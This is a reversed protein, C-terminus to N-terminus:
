ATHDHEKLYRVARAMLIDERCEAPTWPVYLDPAVGRGFVGNGDLAAKTVATPWTLTFREDLAYSVDGCLDLTGLTPRGILYAGARKAALALAEAGGRTWTDTLVAAPVEARGPIVTDDGTDEVLFGRGAKAALEAVFPEAGPLGSIAAAKVLCNRRTYNVFLSTDTLDSLCVDRRCLLPLLAFAEDEDTDPLNRLDLILGEATRVLRPSPVRAAPVPYRGLEMQEASGDPHTVDIRDAMKLLGLWDEREPEDAYFFNRQISRRHQAPSGGNVRDIRDGPALRAEDSVATVYLADGFRRVFFGPCAPTYTDSPALTLRLHRDGTCALMQSVHRLFLLADLRGDHWAQGISQNYYRPDLRDGALRAGAWDQRLISVIEEFLEDFRKNM